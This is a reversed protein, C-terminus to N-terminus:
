IGSIDEGIRIRRELEKARDSHEFFSDAERVSLADIIKKNKMDNNKRIIRSLKNIVEDECSQIKKIHCPVFSRFGYQSNSRSISGYRLEGYSDRKFVGDDKHYVFYEKYEQAYMPKSMVLIIDGCKYPLDIMKASDLNLWEDFMTKEVENGFDQIKYNFDFDLNQESTRSLSFVREYENEVIRYKSIQWYCIDDMDEDVDELESLSNDYARYIMDYISSVQKFVGSYEINNKLYEKRCINYVHYVEDDRADILLLERVKEWFKSVSQMYEDLSIINNKMNM